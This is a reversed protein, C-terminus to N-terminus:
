HWNHLRPLCRAYLVQKIAESVLRQYSQVEPLFRSDVDTSVLACEVEKPNYLKMIAKIFDPNSATRKRFGLLMLAVPLSWRDGFAAGVILTAQDLEQGTLDQSSGWIIPYRLARVANAWANKESRKFALEPFLDFLGLNVLTQFDVQSCRGEINLSGQTLYEGFYLDGRNRLQQITQLTNFDGPYKAHHHPALVQILERDNVFLNRDLGETDILLLQIDELKSGDKSQNHHRYLGYQLAFLLSSSWSVLSCEGPQLNNWWLHDSLRSAATQPSISFIDAPQSKTAVYSASQVRCKDSSGASHPTHLRFLYRPISGSKFLPMRCLQQENPQFPCGSQTARSARDTCQATAKASMNVVKPQSELLQNNTSCTLYLQM